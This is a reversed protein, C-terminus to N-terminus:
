NINNHFCCTMGPTRWNTREAGTQTGEALCVADTASRSGRKSWVKGISEISIEGASFPTGSPDEDCSGNQRKSGPVRLPYGNGAGPVSLLDRIDARYRLSVSYRRRPHRHEAEM